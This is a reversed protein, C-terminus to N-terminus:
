NIIKKNEFFSILIGAYIAGTLNAIVDLIDAKRTTTFNEQLIEITIGMVLSILIINLIKKNSITASRSKVVIAWLFTFVFHFTFHVYKDMGKVGLSPLNNLKALCLIFILVTWSTALGFWIKKHELLRKIIM